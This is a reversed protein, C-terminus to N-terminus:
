NFPLNGLDVNGGSIVLGVKKGAFYEKNKLIAALPLACGPEILIKMREMIIRMAHVIEEEEVTIVKKVVDKIINFNRVGVPTRLGEAITYGKPEPTILEGKQLSQYTDDALAPEALILETNPTLYKIVLASGASLDGGGVPTMIIDLDPTDEILEKTATAQGIIIKYDDYPPIFVANTKKIIEDCVRQRDEANPECFIVEAGYEIVANKKVEATDKPLVIFAPVGAMKSAKAVAQAHNGSSHTAFGNKREEPTLSFIANLAGRMKVSGIKQFNECKFFLEAGTMEDISHATLIPTAITHKHINVFARKIDSLSPIKESAM